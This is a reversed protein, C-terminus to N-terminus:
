SRKNLSKNTKKQSFYPIRQRHIGVCQFLLGEYHLAQTFLQSFNVFERLAPTSTSGMDFEKLVGWFTLTQIQQPQQKFVTAFYFV